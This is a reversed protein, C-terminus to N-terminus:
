MRVTATETAEPTAAIVEAIGDSAGAVTGIQQKGIVKRKESLYLSKSVNLTSAQSLLKEQPLIGGTFGM